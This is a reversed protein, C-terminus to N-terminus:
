NLRTSKRDPRPRAVQVFTAAGHSIYCAQGTQLRRIIDPDAVWTRQERTTGEDGWAAGILKHATALVRRPGALLRTGSTTMPASAKGPSPPSRCASASPGAGNTSTPSPSAAPYPAITM